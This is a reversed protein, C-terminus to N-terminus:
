SLQSVRQVADVFYQYEYCKGDSYRKQLCEDRAHSHRRSAVMIECTFERDEEGCGQKSLDSDVTYYEHDVIRKGCSALHLLFSLLRVHGLVPVYLQLM